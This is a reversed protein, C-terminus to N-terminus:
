FAYSAQGCGFKQGTLDTVKEIYVQTLKLLGSASAGWRDNLIQSDDWQGGNPPNMAIFQYTAFGFLNPNSPVLTNTTDVVTATGLNSTLTRDKLIATITPSGGSPAACLNLAAALVLGFCPSTGPLFLADGTGTIIYSLLGDPVSAYGTAQDAVAQLIGTANAGGITWGGASALAGVIEGTVASPGNRDSLAAASWVTLNDLWLSNPSGPGTWQFTFEDPLTAGFNISSVHIVRVPTVGALGLWVEIEGAVGYKANIEIWYTTNPAVTPTTGLVSGSGDLLDLTGSTNARMQLLSTPGSSAAIILFVQSSAPNVQFYGNWLLISQSGFNRTFTNTTGSTNDISLAGSSKYGALIRTQLFGTLFPSYKLTFTDAECNDFGDAFLLSLAM